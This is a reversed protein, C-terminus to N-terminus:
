VLQGPLRWLGGPETEKTNLNYHIHGHRAKKRPALSIFEARFAQVDLVKGM